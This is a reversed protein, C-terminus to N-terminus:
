MISHLRDFYFAAFSLIIGVAAANLPKTTMAAGNKGTKQQQQTTAGVVAYCFKTKTQPSVRYLLQRSYLPQVPRSNKTIWQRSGRKGGGASELQGM